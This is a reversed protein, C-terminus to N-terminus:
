AQWANLWQKLAVRTPRTDASLEAALHTLDTVEDVDRLLPLMSDLECRKALEAGLKDTSWPLDALVPWPQAAGMLSVGGDKAGGLVYAQRDLKTTAAVLYDQNMAPCDSGIILVQQVGQRRLELDIHTLREGLNGPHQTFVAGSWRGDEALWRADEDATAAVTAPGHWACLDELACDLLLSALEDARRLKQRLRSKARQPAKFVLVLHPLNNQSQM